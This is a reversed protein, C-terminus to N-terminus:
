DTLIKQVSDLEFGYVYDSVKVCRNIVDGEHIASCA